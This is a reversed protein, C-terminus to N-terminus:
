QISALYSEKKNTIVMQSMGLDPVLIESDDNVEKVLIPTAIIPDDTEAFFFILWPYPLSLKPMEIELMQKDKVLWDPYGKRYKTRPHFVMIDYWNPDKEKTFSIKDKNILISSQELEIKQFISDEFAKNSHEFYITQEITLPDKGTLQHIREALAFEWYTGTSGEKIHDWGCLVITKGGLAEVQKTINKAGDVERDEGFDYGIIEFGISRAERVLNGLEPEYFYAGARRIPYSRNNIEKDILTGTNMFNLAELALNRYGKEWLDNLLSRAFNRHKSIYHAENILLYEYASSKEIIFDHANEFHFEKLINAYNTSDIALITDRQFDIANLANYYDSIFSYKTSVFGNNNGASLYKELMGSFEYDSSDFEIKEVLPKQCAGISLVLLCIILRYKMNSKKTNILNFEM